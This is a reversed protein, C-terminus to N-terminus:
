RFADGKSLRDRSARMILDILRDATKWKMALKSSDMSQEAVIDKLQEVTLARLRSSLEDAGAQQMVHIPDLAGPSRRGARRAAPGSPTARLKPEFVQSIRGALEPNGEVEAVILAFLRKLQTAATM